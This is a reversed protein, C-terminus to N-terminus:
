SSQLVAHAALVATSENEQARVPASIVDIASRIDVLEGRELVLVMDCDKLTSLRHAIMFTTRGRMLSELAQMIAAETHVDVSSTPEDLVLVPANRLFARALSIRQREGGSLRTGREGVNTNYGAPQQQIFDHCRAAISAEVIREKSAKPDSYAINEELTTAFLFPEQLVVSFQRRLEELPFERIDVGDLLVSGDSPDHFRMLLDLLTSKGAGTPGAIGVRAGAPVHFSVNKLGWPGEAFRFSVNRFEIDGTARALSRSPKSDKIQPTERLLEFARDVSALWSELDMLRTSILRLPEYMQAIYATVVFLDGVTLRGAKLHQVGVYLVAASGAAITLGVLVNFSGQIVALKVQEGMRLRSGRLFRSHERQEQGLAQILKIAGLAEQVVGLAASDLQKIEASRSRVMRSCQRTLVALPPTITMAIVALKLDIHCTVWLMGVLTCAASFFPIIGQVAVYQISAADHQIRYVSENTGRRQHFSMSLRQVHDLLRARFDWVLKEGTYTQLYWSALAQLNWVLAIALLLGVALVYGNEHAAAPALRLLFGPVGPHGTATDVAIKLPLPGLLVMPTSVLSLVTILALQPRCGRAQEFIRRYLLLSSSSPGAIRQAQSM